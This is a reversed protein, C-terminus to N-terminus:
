PCPTVTPPNKILDRVMAEIRKIKSASGGVTLQMADRSGHVSESALLLHEGEVAFTHPLMYIGTAEFEPMPTASFILDGFPNYITLLVNSGLGSTAQYSINVPENPCVTKERNVFGWGTTQAGLVNSFTFEDQAIIPNLGSNQFIVTYINQGPSSFTVPNFDYYYYGQGVETLATKFRGDSLDGVSAPEEFVGLTFNLAYNDEDRVITATPTLGTLPVGALSITVKLRAVGGILYVDGVVVPLSHTM